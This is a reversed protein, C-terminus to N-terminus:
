VIKPQYTNVREFWKNNHERDYLSREFDNIINVRIFETYENPDTYGEFRVSVVVEYKYGSEKSPHVETSTGDIHFYKLSGNNIWVGILMQQIHLREGSDDNYYTPPLRHRVVRDFEDNVYCEVQHLVEHIMWKKGRAIYPIENEINDSFLSM